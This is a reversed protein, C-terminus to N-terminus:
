LYFFTLLDRIAFFLDDCSGSKEYLGEKILSQVADFVVDTGDMAKIAMDQIMGKNSVDNKYNQAIQAIMPTFDWKGSNNAGIFKYYFNKRGPIYCRIVIIQRDKLMQVFREKTEKEIKM